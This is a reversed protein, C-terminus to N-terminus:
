RPNPQPKDSPKTNEVEECSVPLMWFDEEADDDWGAQRDMVIWARIYKGGRQVFEDAAQLLEAAERPGLREQIIDAWEKIPRDHMQYVMTYHKSFDVGREPALTHQGDVTCFYPDKLIM